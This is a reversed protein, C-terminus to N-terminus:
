PLSIEPRLENSKLASQPEESAPEGPLEYCGLIVQRQIEFNRSDLAALLLPAIDPWFRQRVGNGREM